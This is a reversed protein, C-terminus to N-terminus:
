ESGTPTPSAETPTTSVETPTTSVETPTPSASGQTPEPTPQSPSASERREDVINTLAVSYDYEDEKCEDREDENPLSNCVEYSPVIKMLVPDGIEVPVWRSLLFREPDNGFKDQRGCRWISLDSGDSQDICERLTAGPMTPMPTANDADELARRIDDTDIAEPGEYGDPCRVIAFSWGDRFLDVSPEGIPVVETRITTCESWQRADVGGNMTYGNPCSVISDDEILECAAWERLTTPAAPLTASRPSATLTGDAQGRTPAGASPQEDQGQAPSGSSTESSPQATDSAQDCGAVALLGVVVAALGWRKPAIVIGVVGQIGLRLLREWDGADREDVVEIATGM